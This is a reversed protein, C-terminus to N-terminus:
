VAAPLHIAAVVSNVGFLLFICSGASICLIWAGLVVLDTYLRGLGKRGNVRIHM